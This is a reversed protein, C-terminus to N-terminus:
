GHAISVCDDLDSRVASNKRGVIEGPGASFLRGIEQFCTVQRLERNLFQAVIGHAQLEFLLGPRM